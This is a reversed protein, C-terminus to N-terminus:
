KKELFSNSIYFFIMKFIEFQLQVVSIMNPNFSLGDNGRHYHDVTESM